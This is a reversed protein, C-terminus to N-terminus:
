SEWGIHSKKLLYIFFPAGILMTFIGIPIEFDTLSRSITDIAVLFTGGFALNLPLSRRHDVGILMRVVHPIVLGYLAIIGSVSVAASSALSVFLLIVTKERAPGIGVTRAEDDGLALVNLRWRLLLLVAAGVGCPLLVARLKEWSATQFNGMTWHVISQLRFPDSLFQVVTLLATFIGNVIIGALILSVVSVSRKRLAMFYSLAIAGLGSVFAFLPIPALSLSMALAAGFAAGSSLGLVYPSVLPNRFVAQLAGGCLALVGGVTFVLLIRPLRVDFFITRLLPERAAELTGNLLAIFDGPGGGSSRGVFLAALVVVPPLLCGLLPVFGRRM